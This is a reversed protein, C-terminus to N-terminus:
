KRLMNSDRSHFSQALPAASDAGAALFHDSVEGLTQELVRQEALREALGEAGALPRGSRLTSREVRDVNWAGTIELAEATPNPSQRVPDLGELIFHIAPTALASPPSL